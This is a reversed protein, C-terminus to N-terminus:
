GYDIEENREEPLQPSQKENLIDQQYQMSFLEEECPNQQLWFVWGATDKLYHIHPYEYNDINEELRKTAEEATIYEKCVSYSQRQKPAKHEELKNLLKADRVASVQMCKAEKITSEKDGLLLLFKPFRKVKENPYLKCEFRFLLEFTHTHKPKTSHRM